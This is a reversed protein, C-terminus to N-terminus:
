AISCVSLLVERFQLASLALTELPMSEDVEHINARVDNPGIAFYPATPNGQRVAPVVLHKICPCNEVGFAKNLYRWYATKAITTMDKYIEVPDEDNPAVIYVRDKGKTALVCQRGASASTRTISGLVASSVAINADLHHCILRQAAPAGGSATKEFYGTEDLWLVVQNIEPIDLSLTSYVLHAAESGTEEEGQLIWVLGPLAIKADGACHSVPISLIRLLLPGLDDAVGRCVVRDGMMQPVLPDTSSWLDPEHIDEVDYHGFLGVYAPASDAQSVDPSRIAVLVDAHGSSHIRHIHFGREELMSQVITSAKHVGDPNSQSFPRLALISGLLRYWEDKQAWSAAGDSAPTDSAM